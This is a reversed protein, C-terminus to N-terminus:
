LEDKVNAGKDFPPQCITPAGVEFRYVCKEAEQVSRIETEASCYLEVNASRKPGNWCQQGNEYKLVVGSLPEEHAEEWGTQFIGAADNASTEDKYEIRSFDGLSVKSSDKLSHQYSKGYYCFEYRYEGFDRSVCDDKLSRFVDQEGYDRELDEQLSNINNRTNDLDRQATSLADRAGTVAQSEPVDSDKRAALIGNEVLIQRFEGLKAHVWSRVGAPLYEEFSYVTPCTLNHHGFFAPISVHLLTTTSSVLM